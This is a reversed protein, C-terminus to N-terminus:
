KKDKLQNKLKELDDVALNYGAVMGGLIEAAKQVKKDGKKKLKIRELLKEKEQRLLELIKDVVDIELLEGKVLGYNVLIQNIKKRIEWNEIEKEWNEKKM